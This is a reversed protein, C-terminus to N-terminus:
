SACAPTRDGKRVSKRRQEQKLRVNQASRRLGRKRPSRPLSSLPIPASYSLTRLGTDVFVTVTSRSWDAPLEGALDTLILAHAM